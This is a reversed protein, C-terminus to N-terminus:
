SAHKVEEWKDLMVYWIYAKVDAYGIENLLKMYRRLQGAYNPNEHSGFKYDVVVAVHDRVMVRDPRYEQGEGTLIDRETYVKWDSSFFNEM